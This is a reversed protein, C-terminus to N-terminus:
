NNLFSSARSIAMLKKSSWAVRTFRNELALGLFCNPFHGMFYSQRMLMVSASFWMPM